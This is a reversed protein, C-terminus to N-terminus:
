GLFNLAQICDHDLVLRRVFSNSGDFELTVINIQEGVQDDEKSLHMELQNVNNPVGKYRWPCIKFSNYRKFDICCISGQCLVVAFPFQHPDYFPIRRMSISNREGHPMNFQIVADPKERDVSYVKNDNWAVVGFREGELHIIGRIDHGILYREAGLVFRMEADESPEDQNQKSGRSNSDRDQVDMKGEGDADIDETPDESDRGRSPLVGSPDGEAAHGGSKNSM